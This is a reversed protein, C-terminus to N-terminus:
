TIPWRWCGAAPWRPMSGRGRAQAHNLRELVFMAAGEGMVFGQRDLDFPRCAQRPDEHQALVRMQYFGAALLPHLAEASGVLALDCQGDEISRVASLVEILGSACATSHCLRPGYLKHRNAVHSCATNPLWQHWWPITSKGYLHGMGVQAACGSSDGMHASIACGFRDRDISHDDIEADALAEDAALDCLSIVKLEDPVARDIDVPAGILM